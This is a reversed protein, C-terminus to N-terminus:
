GGDALDRRHQCAAHTVCCVLMHESYVMQLSNDMFPLRSTATIEHRMILRGTGDVVIRDAIPTGDGADYAADANLWGHGCRNWTDGGLQLYKVGFRRLRPDPSIWRGAGSRQKPFSAELQASAPCWTAPSEACPM